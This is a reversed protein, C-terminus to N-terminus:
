NRDPPKMIGLIQISILRGSGMLRSAEGFVGPLNAHIIINIVSIKTNKIMMKLIKYYNKTKIVM